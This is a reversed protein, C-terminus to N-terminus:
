VEDKENKLKTLEAIIVTKELLIATKISIEAVGLDGTNLQKHAKYTCIKILVQNLKDTLEEIYNADSLFQPKTLVLKQGTPFQPYKYHGKPRPFGNFHKCSNVIWNIRELRPTITWYRNFRKINFESEIFKVLDDKTEWADSFQIEFKKVIISSYGEYKHFLGIYGLRLTEYYNSKLQEDTINFIKKWKSKLWEKREEVISKSAKRLYEKGFLDRIQRIEFMNMLMTQYTDVAKPNSLFDSENNAKLTEKM